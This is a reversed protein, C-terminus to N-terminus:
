RGSGPVLRLLHVRRVELNPGCKVSHQASVQGLDMSNARRQRQPEDALAAGVESCPGLEFLKVEHSHRASPLLIDPPLKNEEFVRREDLRAAASKRNAAVVIPQLSVASPM